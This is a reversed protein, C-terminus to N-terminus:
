AREQGRRRAYLAVAGVIILGRVLTRLFPDVALHNFVSDLVGFMLVAAIAGLLRGRGGALAVGGLVVAAISDLDYGGQPGVWPAGAGLRSALFLGGLGACAGCLVHAAILTRNVRIGSTRAVQPDGGVAYVHYGFRTRHMLYWTVAVVAALLLLGVPVGAVADYGIAQFREPVKGAFNDFTANLAGRVILSVAFTAIFANLGLGTVALGNVLGVAAGVALGAAVGLPMRSPDGAMAVSATVAAISVTYAVSLDLSGALVVVAQGVAVLGLAVSRGGINQMNQASLFAGGSRSVVLWSVATMLALVLWVPLSSSGTGFRPVRVARVASTITTM